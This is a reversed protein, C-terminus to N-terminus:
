REAEKLGSAPFDPKTIKKGGSLELGQVLNTISFGFFAAKRKKIYLFSLSRKRWGGFCDWTCCVGSSDAPTHELFVRDRPSQSYNEGESFCLLLSCSSVLPLILGGRLWHGAEESTNKVCTRLGLVLAPQERESWCRLWQARDKHSSM